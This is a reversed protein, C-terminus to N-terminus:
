SSTSGCGKVLIHRKLADKRSFSKDCSPCPFPKIALHIRKHRKLDHSRQFSQPCQDCKFPREGTNSAGRGARGGAYPSQQAPMNNPAYQGNYAGNNYGPAGYPTNRWQTDQSGERSHPPMQNQYMGGYQGGGPAGAGAAGGYQQPYGGGYGGAPGGYMGAPGQPQNAGYQSVFVPYGGPNNGGPQQQANYGEHMQGPPPLPTSSSEAHPSGTRPAPNSSGPRPQYATYNQPQQPMNSNNYVSPLHSPNQQNPFPVPAQGQQGGQPGAWFGSNMGYHQGGAGAGQQQGYEHQNQGPAPAPMNSGNGGTGGAPFKMNNHSQDAKSDFSGSSSGNFQRSNFPPLSQHNM